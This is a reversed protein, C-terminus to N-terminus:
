SINKTNTAQRLAKEKDLRRVYENGLIFNVERKMAKIFKKYNDSSKLMSKGPNNTIEFPDEISFAIDDDREKISEILEKHVSIKQKSDFFYSYYEFFKVLLNTVTEENQKGENIKNMYEKIKNYDKEYYSNTTIPRDNYYYEYLEEGYIPNALDNNIPIKQLNPLIKPQVIKQLFHIMMLLLAYSSLYNDLAGHINNTKAWYKLYIGMIHFRQDFLGYLRILYTNFIPLMNHVTIDVNFKSKTQSYTIKLLIFSNTIIVKHIAGLNQKIIGKKLNELYNIQFVSLSCKPVICIDIDTDGIDVMFTNVFSGYKQIKEIVENPNQFSNYIANRYSIYLNELFKYHKNRNDIIKQYLPILIRKEFNQMNNWIIQPSEIQLCKFLLYQIYIESEKSQPIMIKSCVYQFLSPKNISPISPMKKYTQILSYLNNDIMQPNQQFFENTYYTFKSVLFEEKNFNTRLKNKIKDMLKPDMDKVSDTYKKSHNHLNNDSKNFHIAEKIEKNDTIKDKNEICNEKQLEEKELEDEAEKLIQGINLKELLKAIKIKINQEEEIIVRFQENEIDDQIADDLDNIGFQNMDIIEEEKEDSSCHEKLRYIDKPEQGTAEIMFKNFEGTFNVALNFDEEEGIQDSDKNINNELNTNIGKKFEDNNYNDIDNGAKKDVIKQDKTKENSDEADINNEKNLINDETIRNPEIIINDKIINTNIEIKNENENNNQNKDKGNIENEILNDNMTNNIDINLDENPNENFDKDLNNNFDKNINDKIEKNINDNIDKSINDNIDKSINDNLERRINDGEKKEQENKDINLIIANSNSDNQNILETLVEGNPENQNTNIKNNNIIENEQGNAPEISQNQNNSEVNNDNTNEIINNNEDIEVFDRKKNPSKRYNKKNINNININNQMNYRNYYNNHYNNNKNYINQKYGNNYYFNKYKNFSNNFNSNYISNNYNNNYPKIEINSNNDGNHENNNINNNVINNELKAGNNNEEDNERIINNNENNISINKSEQINKSAPVEVAIMKNQYLNKPKRKYNLSNNQTLNPSGTIIEIDNNNSNIDNSINIINSNDGNAGNNEININRVSPHNEGENIGGNFNNENPNNSESKLNNGGNININDNESSNNNNYNNNELNENKHDEEKSKNDYYSPESSIEIEKEEQQKKMHYKRNSNNINNFNNNRNYVKRGYYFGKSSIGKDYNSNMNFDEYKFQKNNYYGTDNNRFFNDNYDNGSYNKYDSYYNNEYDDYNRYGQNSYNNNRREKIKQSLGKMDKLRNELEKKKSEDIVNKVVWFINQMQKFLKFDFKNGKHVQDLEKEIEDSLEKHNNFYMHQYFDKRYNILTMETYQIRNNILNTFEYKRKVIISNIENMKDKFKKVDLEEMFLNLNDVFKLAELLQNTDNQNVNNNYLKSKFSNFINIVKPINQSIKQSMDQENKISLISKIDDLLIYQSGSNM